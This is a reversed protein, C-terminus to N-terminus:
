CCRLLAPSHSCITGGPYHLKNQAVKYQWLVKYPSPKFATPEILAGMSFLHNTNFHLMINYCSACASEFKLCPYSQMQTNFYPM